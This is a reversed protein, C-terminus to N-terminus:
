PKRCFFNDPDDPSGSGKYIAVAPYPCVLRKGIEVNDKYRAVILQDPAQGTEHWREVIERSDFDFNQPGNTGPCHGMGPVMFLRVSKQAATAGIKKVVKNYYDIAGGPPVGADAWGGHLLLKGGRAVFAKLDTLESNQNADLLRNQKSDALAVDSDFNVPRAKYTWNPDKFVLHRLIEYPELRFGEPGSFQTRQLGTLQAWGLESGARYPFYIPKGTRANVPGAYIEQTAKVQAATLCSANDSTKCELIKPDFKCRTPDIIGDKVGDNGDCAEVAAKHLLELKAEPILSAETHHTVVWPWLQGFIMHMRDTTYGGVAVADFDEPFRAPTNLAPVSAGGCEDLVSLQPAKGYFATTLTRAAAALEHTSGYVWDEIREPSHNLDALSEYASTAGTAYGERLVAAVAAFRIGAPIGSGLSGPQFKGNWGAVPMWVEIKIESNRSRKSIATVRCFPPLNNLQQRDIALTGSTVLVASNITTHPLLATALSECSVAPSAAASRATVLCVILILFKKM